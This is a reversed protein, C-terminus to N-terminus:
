AYYAHPIFPGKPIKALKGLDYNDGASLDWVFDFFTKASRLFEPDETYLGCEPNWNYSNELLNASGLLVAGDEIGGIVFLKAHVGFEKKSSNGMRKLQSAGHFEKFRTFTRYQVSSAKNGLGKLFGEQITKWSRPSPDLRSIIKIKFGKAILRRILAVYKVLEYDIYPTMIRLEKTKLDKELGMSMLRDTASAYSIENETKLLPWEDSIRSVEHELAASRGIYNEVAEEGLAEPDLLTFVFNHPSAKFRLLQDLLRENVEAINSRIGNAYINADPEKTALADLADIEVAYRHYEKMVFDAYETEISSEPSVGSMLDLTTYPNGIRINGSFAETLLKSCSDLDMALAYPLYSTLVRGFKNNLAVIRSLGNRIESETRGSSSAVKGFKPEFGLTPPGPPPFDLVLHKPIENIEKGMQSVKTKLLSRLIEINSLVKAALGEIPYALHSLVDSPKVDSNKVEYEINISELFRATIEDLVMGQNLQLLYRIVNRAVIWNGEKTTIEVKNVLKKITALELQLDPDSPKGVLNLLGFSAMLKAFLSTEETFFGGFESYSMEEINKSDVYMAFRRLSPITDLTRARIVSIPDELSVCLMGLPLIGEHSSLGLEESLWANAKRFSTEDKVSNTRIVELKRALDFNKTGIAEDVLYLFISEPSVGWIHTQTELSALNEKLM